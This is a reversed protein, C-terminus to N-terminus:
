QNQQNNTSQSQNYGSMIDSFPDGGPQAPTQPQPTYPPVQPQMQMPMQNPAYQNTPMQYTGGPLQQPYYTQQPYQMAQYQTQPQQMYQQYFQPQTQPMMQAQPMTQTQPITQAQPLTQPQPGASFVNSLESIGLDTSPPADKGLLIEDDTEKPENFPELNHSEGMDFLANVDTKSQTTETGGILEEIQQDNQKVKNAKKKKKKDNESDTDSDENESEEEDESDKDKKM